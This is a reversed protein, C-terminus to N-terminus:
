YSMYKYKGTTINLDTLEAVHGYTIPFSLVELYNRVEDIVTTSTTNLEFEVLFDIFALESKPVCMQGDSPIASICTCTGEYLNNCANYIICNSFSWFYQDECTCQYESENLHCVTTINVSDIETTNDIQLPSISELSSKFEDFLIAQSMNVEIIVIYELIDTNVDRKERLHNMQGDTYSFEITMDSIEPFGQSNVVQMHILLIAVFGLFYESIKGKNAM